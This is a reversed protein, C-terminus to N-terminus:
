ELQKRYQENSISEVDEVYGMSDDKSFPNDSTVDNYVNVDQWADEGDYMVSDELSNDRFSRGFPPTLIQEEIPRGKEKDEAKLPLDEECSICLRAYPIIDLREEAIEKGCNECIGYTGNEIKRLAENVEGIVYKDNTRFSFNKEAEFTETGLDGPHNDYSSLESTNDRISEGLGLSDDNLSEERERRIDMLKNKLDMIKERNM